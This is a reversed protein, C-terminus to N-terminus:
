DSYKTFIRHQGMVDPGTVEIVEQLELVRDVCALTQWSSGTEGRIIADTRVAGAEVILEHMRDRIRLFQVQGAETFVYPREKQYDYPM